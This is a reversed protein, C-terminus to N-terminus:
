AHKGVPCPPDQRPRLTVPYRVRAAGTGCLFGLASVVGEICGLLAEDMAGAAEAVVDRVRGAADVTFAVVVRGAVSADRLLADAYCRRIRGRSAALGERIHSAPVVGDFCKEHGGPHYRSRSTGLRAPRVPRGLIPRPEPLALTCAEIPAETDAPIPAPVAEPPPDRRVPLVQAATPSAPHHACAAGLLLCLVGPSGVIPIHDAQV